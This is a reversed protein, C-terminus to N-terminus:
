EDDTIEAVSESLPFTKTCDLALTYTRQPGSPTSTSLHMQLSGRLDNLSPFRDVTFYVLVVESVFHFFSHSFQHVFTCFYKWLQGFRALFFISYYLFFLKYSARSNKDLELQPFVRQKRTLSRVDLYGLLPLRM